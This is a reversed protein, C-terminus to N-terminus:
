DLGPRHLNRIQPLVAASARADLHELAARVVFEGDICPVSGAAIVRFWAQAPMNRETQRMRFEAQSCDLEIADQFVRLLLAGEVGRELVRCSLLAADVHLVSEKKRTVLLGVRGYDGLRDEVEVIWGRSGTSAAADEFGHFEGSVARFQTVRQLLQHARPMASPTLPAISVTVELQRIFDESSVQGPRLARRAEEQQYRRGRETDEATLDAVGLTWAGRIVEALEAPSSFEPVLVEPLQTRVLERQLPDDDLFLFSSLALGLERGLDAILVPKPSWSIRTSTIDARSLSLRGSNLVRQVDDEANHSVLCVIRGSRAQQSVLENVEEWPGATEVGQPGVDGCEGGWLTGDCDVAIVKTVPLLRGFAARALDAALSRIWEMRYPIHALTDLLPDSHRGPPSDVLVAGAKGARETLTRAAREAWARLPPESLVEDCSPAVCCCLLAAGYCCQQEIAQVVTDLWADAKASFRYAPPDADVRLADDVRVVVLDVDGPESTHQSSVLRDAIQGYASTLDTSVGQRVLVARLEALLLDPAFSTYLGTRPRRSGTV